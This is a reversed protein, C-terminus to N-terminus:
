GPSKEAALVTNWLLMAVTMPGVGGPVPTIAGALPKVAGSGTTIKGCRCAIDLPKDGGIKYTLKNIRECDGVM